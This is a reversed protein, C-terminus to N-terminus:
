YQIILIYPEQHYSNLVLRLAALPKPRYVANILRRPAVIVKREAQARRPGTGGCHHTQSYAGDQFM